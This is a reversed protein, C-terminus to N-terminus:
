AKLAAQLKKSDGLIGSKTLVEVILEILGQISLEANAMIFLDFMEDDNLNHGGGLVSFKFLTYIDESCFPQDAITALLNHNRLSRECLFMGKNRLSFKYTKGNIEREAFNDFVLSM